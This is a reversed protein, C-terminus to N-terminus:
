NKMIGVVKIIKRNHQGEVIVQNDARNEPNEVKFFVTAEHWVPVPVHEKNQLVAPSALHSSLSEARVM